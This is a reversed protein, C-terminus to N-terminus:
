KACSILVGEGRNRRSGVNGASSRFLASPTQAAVVFVFSFHTFPRRVARATISRLKIKTYFQPRSTNSATEFRNTLFGSEFMLSSNVHQDQTLGPM